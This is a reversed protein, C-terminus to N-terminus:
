LHLLFYFRDLHMYNFLKYKQTISCKMTKFELPGSVCVKSATSEVIQLSILSKIHRIETWHSVRRNNCLFGLVVMRIWSIIAIIIKRHITSWAYFRSVSSSSSVSDSVVSSSLSSCFTKVVPGTGFHLLPHWVLPPMLLPM